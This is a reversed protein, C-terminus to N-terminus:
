STASAAPGALRRAWGRVAPDDPAEALARLALVGARGVDGVAHAALAARLLRIARATPVRAYAIAQPTDTAAQAAQEMSILIEATEAGWRAPSLRYATFELRPRNWTNTPGAGVTAALSAGDAVWRALFAEHTLIGLEALDSASAAGVDAPLSVPRGVLPAASAVFLIHSPPEFFVDVHDFVGTITRVIMGYEDSGIALPVWQVFIGRESLRDHCLRYYEHTLLKATGAFSMAQKGDSIVADYRHSTRQLFHLADDVVVTVRPDDLAGAAPFFRCGTVVPANIEVVDARRVSPHSLIAELTEGSGLGVTLVDHLRGDLAFPLHAVLVQKPWLTAGWGRTAGITTGDIAMGLREPNGRDRWVQITALDGEEEYLLDADDAVAGAVGFRVRDPGLAVALVFLAVGAGALGARRPFGGPARALIALALAVNVAAIVRTGGVTGFAPLVVIAGALAGVISGVNALLVADGLREGLRRVDGVFLSTALPFSLGMLLTAPFMTAFAVASNVLLREQWPRDYFTQFFISVRQQFVDSGVGTAIVGIAILATVAIGLQCLALSLEPNRRKALPRFLLPGAGLGILFVFLMTTFAYTSNGFLYALARFWVMEYALTALGSGLLVAGILGRPLATPAPASEPVPEADPAEKERRARHLVVAAVSLNLVNGAIVTGRLGLAEISVVGALLVGLAAGLTNIGYLLGLHRSLAGRSRILVVSLAPFTAGMLACPLLLVVFAFVFRMVVLGPGNGTADALPAFLAPLRPLLLTVPLSTAAIGLELWAYSRLPRGYRALLLPYARAGLGMGGLFGALVAGAALRTAGFTLSLSKTWAVEYGLAAIGSVFSCVYLTAALSPSGRRDAM